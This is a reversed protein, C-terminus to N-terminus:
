HGFGIERARGIKLRAEDCLARCLEGPALKRDLLRSRRAVVAFDGPTLADLRDLTSRLAPEDM